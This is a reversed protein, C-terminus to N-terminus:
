WQPAPLHLLAALLARESDASPLGVPRAGFLIRALLQMPRARFTRWATACSHKRRSSTCPSTVATETQRCYNWSGTNLEASVIGTLRVACDCICTWEFRNWSRSCLSSLAAKSELNKTRPGFTALERGLDEVIKASAFALLTEPQVDKLISLVFREREAGYALRSRVDNAHSETLTEDKALADLLQVQKQVEISDLGVAGVYMKIVATREAPYMGDIVELVLALDYRNVLDVPTLAVLRQAVVQRYEVLRTDPVVDHLELLLRLANGQVLGGARHSQRVRDLLLLIAQDSAAETQTILGCIRSSDAQRIGEEIGLM